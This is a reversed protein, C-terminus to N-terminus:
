CPHVNCKTCRYAVEIYTFAENLATCSGNSARTFCPFQQEFSISPGGGIPELLGLFKLYLGLAERDGNPCMGTMVDRIPTTSPVGLIDHFPLDCRLGGGSSSGTCGLNTAPPPPSTWHSPDAINGMVKWEVIAFLFNYGPFPAFTFQLALGSFTLCVTSTAIPALVLGVVIPPCQEPWFNELPLQFTNQDPMAVGALLCHDNCVDYDWRKVHTSGARTAFGCGALFAAAHALKM